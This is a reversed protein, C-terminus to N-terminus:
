VWSVDRCLQVNTPQSTLFGLCLNLLNTECLHSVVRGLITLLFLTIEHCVTFGTKLPWKSISLIFTKNSFPLKIFTSLIAAINKVQM